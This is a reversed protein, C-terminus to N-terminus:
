GTTQEYVRLFNGGLIKLIDAESYKRRILEATFGDLKTHNEIIDKSPLEEEIQLYDKFSDCLDFGIGVHDIGAVQVVHDLHDVLHSVGINNEDDSVFANIANM